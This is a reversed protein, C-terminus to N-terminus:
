ISKISELVKSYIDAESFPNFTYSPKCVDYVYDLDSAIIPLKHLSAEILPLGLSENLSPFILYDVIKYLYHMNEFSQNGLFILHNNEKFSFPVDNIEITLLLKINCMRTKILNNFTQFLIKHNKHPSFNAPYFYITNFKAIKEVYNIEKSKYVLKKFGNTKMYYDLRLKKWYNDQLIIKNQPKLFQVLNKMSKTQVIIIDRRRLFLNILLSHLIHYLIFKINFFLDGNFYNLHSFLNRNQFLIYVQNNSLPFRFLPPLGNLYFESFSQNKRELKRLNNKFIKIYKLRELFVFFNRFINKKFYKIEANTFPKLNKKARYDLLILNEKKDLESHMLSLYVLGGGNHISICNFINTIM